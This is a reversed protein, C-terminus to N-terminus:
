DKNVSTDQICYALMEPCYQKFEAGKEAGKDIYGRNICLQRFDTKSNNKFREGWSHLSHGLHRDPNLLRSLILTDIIKTEEGFLLDPKDLYGVEYDLVGFLKLTLFDFKIVNHGVLHTCGKLNERMWEKTINEKESAIIEDTYADRIVVCWLKADAKLKYPFSNYDLMESLLDSTEIDLVLARQEM